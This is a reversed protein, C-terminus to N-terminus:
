DNATAEDRACSQCLRIGRAALTPDAPRPCLGCDLREVEGKRPHLHRGSMVVTARSSRTTPWRTLMAVGAPTSVAGRLEAHRVMRRDATM